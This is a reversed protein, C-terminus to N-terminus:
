MVKVFPTAALRLRALPSTSVVTLNSGVFKMKFHHSTLWQTMVSLHNSGSDVKTIFIVSSESLIIQRLSVSVEYSFEISRCWTVPPTLQFKELWGLNFSSIVTTKGHPFCVPRQCIQEERIVVPITSVSLM